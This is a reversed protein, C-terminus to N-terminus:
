IQFQFASNATIKSINASMLEAISVQNWEIWLQVVSELRIGLQVQGDVQTWSSGQLADTDTERSSTRRTEIAM